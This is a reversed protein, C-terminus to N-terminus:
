EVEPEGLSLQAEFLSRRSSQLDSMGERPANRKSKKAGKDHLGQAVEEAYREHNLKLLRKLVETRAAPSITYRIGQPTPHFGHGLDFDWGYADRVAEDLGRHLSRLERIDSDSDSIANMLRALKTLGIGRTHTATTRHNWVGLGTSALDATSLPLPFTEFCDSPTYRIDTRMSSAENEVWITHFVSQIVAYLGLNESAVVVTAESPIVGSPILAFSNINAVRARCLYAQLGKLSAYLGPRREAFMWWRTRYADRNDHAREQRVLREVIEICASYDAAVPGPYDAPVGGLQLWKQKREDDAGEWRSGPKPFWDVSRKPNSARISDIVMEGGPLSQDVRGLPWDFFNIVWRSPSQDPRSNLDEGNLYPFLVDRNKPDREILVQAEEPSMVFGMGLVYSGIFSLGENAKLRHPKGSTSGDDLYATITPVPQGDLISESCWEGKRCWLKAVELNASKSPWKMSKVARFISCEGASMPLDFRKRSESPTPANSPPVLQELGVERTDGQSITNTALYGLVGGPRILGVARLVFYACLDASGRKGKGIHALVYDRYETGMSGTIRQGGVFPPNGVIADFGRPEPESDTPKSSFVDPFELDFHFARRSACEIRLVELLALSKEDLLAGLEPRHILAFEVDEIEDHSWSRKNLRDFERLVLIDAADRLPEVLEGMQAYLSQKFEILRPETSPVRLIQKRLAEVQSVLEPVWQLFMAGSTETAPRLSFARLQELSVGILSDGSRLSHDLFGFPKDKRLTILWLSLKAMEAAMPNLDVGYLCRDVIIRMAVALREEPEEPVLEESPQGVAIKGIPTTVHTGPPWPRENPDQLMAYEGQSSFLLRRGAYEARLASEKANWAEVLRAALYRAVAVLFAGSGMAIDAVKLNVIKEADVLRWEDRPKGEAPGAYVLPELAHEVMEEALFKPTYHTGTGRRHDSVTVYLGMDPYIQLRGIPDPRILNAFPRVREIFAEDGGCAAHLASATELGIPEALLKALAKETKGTEEVLLVLLDKDSKGELDALAVEPEAGRKGVLGLVPGNARKATHDLLGEYVYGINEVDLGVFSVRRREQGRSTQVRIYQVSELMHLTVRNNIRLKELFPYREPDFLSGGYQTVALEPHQSGGYLLRSLALLRLWADYRKELIEEGQESAAEELQGLLTSAAYGDHYAESEDIPLLKREEACLLFVIRMMLTLASNYVEIAEENAIIDRCRIDMERVLLEVAERVQRGLEETLEEEDDRSRELLEHLREGDPAGIVRRIGFLSTFACFVIQEDALIDARFTATGTPKQDAVHILAWEHGNTVIGAPTKTTKLLAQLRQNPSASWKKDASPSSLRQDRPVVMVALLVRDLQEPHAITYDPRITEDHEPERHECTAPIDDGQKLVEPDLELVDTLLFDVFVRHHKPDSATQWWEYVLRYQSGKESDYADLGSPFTRQLIGDSLFPGTVDILGIWEHNAKIRRM